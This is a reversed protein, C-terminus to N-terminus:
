RELMTSRQAALGATAVLGAQWLHMCDSAQKGHQSHPPPEGEKQKSWHVTPQRDSTVEAVATLQLSAPAAPEATGTQDEIGFQEFLTARQRLLKPTSSV